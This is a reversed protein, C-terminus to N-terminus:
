CKRAEEIRLFDQINIIVLDNEHHTNKEHVVVIPIKNNKNNRNAQAMWKKAVFKLRSKVEISFKPHKVDEGGFLGMRDGNFIKAIAKEVEKGRQRNRKPNM